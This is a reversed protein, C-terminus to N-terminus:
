PTPYSVGYGPVEAPNQRKAHLVQLSLNGVKM